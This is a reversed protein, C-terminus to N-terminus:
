DSHIMEQIRSALQSRDISQQEGSSLEKVTVVSKELEDPGLIAVFRAGIRDAYRFQRALKDPEGYCVTNIGNRRLEASLALSDLLRQQDFVTVLIPAPSLDLGEPVLNLEQLLLSIVVDGMAYGVAPLPQGGVDSILSDYRGGGLISRRLDGTIAQAEFVTGTYYDLGRIIKPDFRVYESVGLAELAPFLDQLAESKQWLEGNELVTQLGDIQGPSLGSESAYSVWDALRMKDKRDILRFIDKMRDPSIGQNAIQEEMLPRNNVFILADQPKLGVQRFFTAIIAIMEADAIASGSGILDINWQFFERTRGRQPREYRWFPGFSWWRIPFTLQSQRQAVMRVLTPTLEPRLTIMNGGRDAFVFSQEKVLEDGSKAAYLDISELFPGEYEQYGFSESVQRIVNYLWTRFAMDIPYFDRTGKVPPISTKM